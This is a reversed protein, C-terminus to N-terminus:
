AANIKSLFFKLAVVVLYMKAMFGEIKHNPNNTKSFRLNGM